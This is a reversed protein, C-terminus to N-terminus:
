LNFSVEVYDHFFTEPEYLFLDNNCNKLLHNTILGNGPNAELIPRHEPLDQLLIDAIERGTKKCTVYFGTPFSWKKKILSVPYTSLVESRMKNEFYKKIDKNLTKEPKEVKPSKSTNKLPIKSLEELRSVEDLAKTSLSRCITLIKNSIKMNQIKILM